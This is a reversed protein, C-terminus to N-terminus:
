EAPILKIAVDEMNTVGIQCKKMTELAAIHTEPTVGACCSADVTINARNFVTAKVLLANSVVCIDTCFGVFEIELEGQISAVRAALETSGFTPKNIYQVTCPREDNVSKDILADAVDKNLYWGDTDRVCHVFPLNKGENTELYDSGHTDRTVFICDGDFKKIKEVINKVREQAVPNALSGDIFDNQVDVVILIHHKM